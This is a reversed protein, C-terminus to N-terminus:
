IYTMIPLDQFYLRQPFSAFCRTKHGAFARTAAPLASFGFDDSSKPTQWLTTTSLLRKGGEISMQCGNECNSITDAVPDIYKALIKWESFTPVHWGAPCMKRSDTVAYGNYLYGYTGVYDPVPILSTITFGLHGTRAGITATGWTSNTSDPIEDGNNNYKTVKLNTKTWCQTGISVTEYVNGDIDSITSTGCTFSPACPVVTFNELAAKKRRVKIEEVNFSANRKMENPSIEKSLLEGAPKEGNPNVQAFCIVPLMTLLLIRIKMKHKKLYTM